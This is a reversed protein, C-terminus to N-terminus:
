VEFKHEQGAINIKKKLIHFLSQKFYYSILLKSLQSHIELIPSSFASNLHMQSGLKVSNKMQRPMVSICELKTREFTTKGLAGFDLSIHQHIIVYHGISTKHM